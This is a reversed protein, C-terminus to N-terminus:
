NPKDTGAMSPGVGVSVLDDAAVYEGNTNLYWRRMKPLRLGDPGKVVDYFVISEGDNAAEDQYFSCGVLEYTVPHVYFYWVDSGVKAYNVRLAYVDRGAFKVRKVEPDLVIDPDRLKMPIGYLFTFYDRLGPLQDPSLRHTKLDEKSIEESRNLIARLSEGEGIVEIRDEGRMTRYRFRGAPIDVLIRDKRTAYGRAEALRDSLTVDVLLEITNSSWLNAPDHYAITRELLEEAKPLAVPATQAAIPTALIVLLIPLRM